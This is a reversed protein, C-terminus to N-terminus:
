TPEDASRRRTVGRLLAHIPGFLLRGLQFADEVPLYYLERDDTSFSKDATDRSTFSYFRIVSCRASGKSARPRVPSQFSLRCSRPRRSMPFLVARIWLFTFPSVLVRIM